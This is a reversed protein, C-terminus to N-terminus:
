WGFLLTLAAVRRAVFNLIKVSSREKALVGLSVQSGTSLLCRKGITSIDQSFEGPDWCLSIEPAMVRDGLEAEELDQAEITARGGHRPDRFYFVEVYAFALRKCFEM